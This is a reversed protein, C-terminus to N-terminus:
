SIVQQFEQDSATPNVPTQIAVPRASCLLRRVQWCLNLFSAFVFMLSFLDYSLHCNTNYILMYLGFCVENLRLDRGYRLQTSSNFIHEMGDITSEDVSDTDERKSDDSGNVDTISSPITVPHLHLMYPTSMSVSTVNSSSNMETFKKSHSLSLDERGLLVYASAPWDTPPCERCKDM